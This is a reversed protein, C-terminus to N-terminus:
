TSCSMCAIYYLNTYRICLCPM